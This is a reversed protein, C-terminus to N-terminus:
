MSSDDGRNPHLHMRSPIALRLLASLDRQFQPQRHALTGPRRADDQDEASRQGNVTFLWHGAVNASDSTPWPSRAPAMRSITRTTTMTVNPYLGIAKRVPRGPETERGTQPDFVEFDKLMPDASTSKNAPDLVIRRGSDHLLGAFGKFAPDSCLSGVTLVGALCRRGPRHCRTLRPHLWNFSAPHTGPIGIAVPIEDLLVQHGQMPMAAPCPIARAPM